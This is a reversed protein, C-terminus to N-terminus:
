RIDKVTVEGASVPWNRGNKDQVILRGILDVDHALGSLEKSGDRKGGVVTVQKGLTTIRERWEPLVTGGATIVKYHNDLSQMLKEFVERRNLQRGLEAALSTSNPAVKSSLEPNFNLNLGIGIVATM